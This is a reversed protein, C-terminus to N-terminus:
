KSHVLKYVVTADIYWKGEIKSWGFSAVQAKPNHTPDCKSSPLLECVVFLQNTITDPKQPDIEVVPYNDKLLFYEYGAEYNNDSIVALNFPKGDSKEEITKAADLAGQLLRHPSKLLPSGFLNIAILYSLLIFGLWKLVKGGSVLMYILVGILIFPAPFLFGFYHDYISQKYLALGVLGFGIWSLILWYEGAIKLSKKKLYVTVFVWIIGIVMIASTIFTGVVNKGAVVSSTFLNLVMPLKSIATWPSLSVTTPSAVLFAYMSRANMWNHRLDFFFLPSMLLIFGTLAIFSKGIFVKAANAKKAKFYALLWFIFITPTLLLGLYHSQLVAAFSLGLVILWNYKQEHWVKWISYISLLAFFPMINPNWSSRSYNIVTPSIAFLGAATLGVTTNFWKRGVWWVFGVTVVGLLAIQVAPGIPSFNAILLAPAMMYYYLPGLYLNGVSTGPGILPPHLETFIRRVIIADRGEDGLFTMYQDIKYLRCFASVALIAVLIWFEWPNKKVWNKFNLAIKEV